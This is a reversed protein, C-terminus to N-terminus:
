KQWLDNDKGDTNRPKVADALRATLVSLLLNENANRDAYEGIGRLVEMCDTMQSITLNKGLLLAERELGSLSPVDADAAAADRLICMLYMATKRVLQRNKQLAACANIMAFEDRSALAVALAAAIERESGEKQEKEGLSFSTSRSLVTPLLKQLGDAALVFNVFPPPEELTKLFANQAETTMGDADLLIYVKRAAENPVIYLSSLIGERIVNIGVTHAKETGCLVRIDPHSGAKTKKCASCVGCPAKERNECLLAAAAAEATKKRTREDAGYLLVAHPCRGTRVLSLLADPLIENKATTNKM